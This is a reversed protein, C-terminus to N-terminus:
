FPNLAAIVFFVILVYIVGIITLKYFALLVILAPILAEFIIRLFILIRITTTKKVKTIAEDTQM